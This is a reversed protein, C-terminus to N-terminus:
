EEAIGAMNTMVFVPRMESEDDPEYMLLSFVTKEHSWGVGKGGGSWQFTADYMKNWGELNRFFASYHDVIKDWSADRPLQYEERWLGEVGTEDVRNQIVKYFGNMISLSKTSYGGKAAALLDAPPAPGLSPQANCGALTVILGVMAITMISARCTSYMFNEPTISPRGSQGIYVNPLRALTM